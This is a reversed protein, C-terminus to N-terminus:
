TNSIKGRKLWNRKIGEIRGVIIKLEKKVQKTRPFISLLQDKKSQLNTCRENWWIRSKQHKILQNSTMEDRAKTSSLKISQNLVKMLENLNEKVNSKVSERLQSLAKLQTSKHELFHKNFTEEFMKSNLIYRPIFNDNKKISILRRKENQIDLTLAYHDSRNNDTSRITINEVKVENLNGAIHDIWSTHGNKYTYSVQQITKTDLIELSNHQLFDLLIPKHKPHKNENFTDVNFDGMMIPQYKNNRANTILNTITSLTKNFEFINKDSNEYPLYVAIIFLNEITIVTIRESPNYSQSHLYKKAIAVIGSSGRGRMSQKLAPNFHCTVEQTNKITSTVMEKKTAMTEIFITIDNENILQNQYNIDKNISNVNLIALKIKDRTQNTNTINTTLHQTSPNNIQQQDQQTINTHSQILTQNQNTTNNM